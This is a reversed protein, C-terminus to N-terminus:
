IQQKTTKDRGTEAYDLLSTLEIINRKISNYLFDGPKCKVGDIYKVTLLPNTFEDAYLILGINYIDNIKTSIDFVTEPM